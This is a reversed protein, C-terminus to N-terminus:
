EIERDITRVRYDCSLYIKEVDLHWRDLDNYRPRHNTKLYWYLCNLHVRDLDEVKLQRREVIKNPDSKSYRFEELNEKFRNFDSPHIDVVLGYGIISIQHTEALIKVM